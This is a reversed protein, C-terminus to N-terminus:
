APQGESELRHSGGQGGRVIMVSLEFLLWMPFSVLILTFIDSTPTVVAAALLIAILAHRRYRQMLSATLFGAKALIWSLVPMEFIVGMSFSLSLLTSIYSQLTIMNHVEESVQYGGLFRFVLPFVLFYGLAAGAMFMIYGWCTLKFAYKRENGYLAPSVFRFLQYLIYPFACIVGVWFSLRMHTMFQEALGTNVLPVDSISMRDGSFVGSVSQLLRYAIFDRGIPALVLGFLWEKGWFAATGCAVTVVAMKILIMRLEDLHDGLSMQKPVNGAMKGTGTLKQM